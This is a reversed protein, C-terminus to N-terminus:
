LQARRIRALATIFRGSREMVNSIYSNGPAQPQSCSAIRGGTQSQLGGSRTHITSVGACWSDNARWVTFIM